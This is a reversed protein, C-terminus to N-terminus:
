MHRPPNIGTSETHEGDADRWWVMLTQEDPLPQRVEVAMHAPPDGPALVIAGGAETSVANGEADEIWLTLATITAEGGNRVEYDHRVPNAAPGGSGGRPVVVPKGRRREAHEREERTLRREDRHEARYARRDARAALVLSGLAIGIAVLSVVFAAIEV